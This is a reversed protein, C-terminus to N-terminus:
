SSEVGGIDKEKEKAVVYKVQLDFESVEDRGEGRGRGEGRPLFKEVKSRFCPLV